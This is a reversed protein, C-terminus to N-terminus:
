ECLFGIMLRVLFRAFCIVSCSDGTSRRYRSIECRFSGNCCCCCSYLVWNPRCLSELVIFSPQLVILSPIMVSNITDGVNRIIESFIIEVVVLIILSVSEVLLLLLGKFSFTFAGSNTGPDYPDFGAAFTLQVIAETFQGFFRKRIMERGNKLSRSRRHVVLGRISHVVVVTRLALNIVVIM